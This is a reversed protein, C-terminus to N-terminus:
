LGDKKLGPQMLGALIIEHEILESMRRYQGQYLILDKM